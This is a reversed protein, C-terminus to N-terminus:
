ELTKNIKDLNHRCLHLIDNTNFSIAFFEGALCSDKTIKQGQQLESQIIRIVALYEKQALQLDVASHYAKALLYHALWSSPNIYIAEKFRRITESKDGAYQAILALFMSCDFSWRDADLTKLFINKAEDIRKLNFLAAGRLVNAHIAGKGDETLPELVKIAAEFKKDKLLVRAEDLLAEPQPEVTKENKVAGSNIRKFTDRKPPKHKLSVSSGSSVAEPLKKFVFVGDMEILSLSGHKHGFTEVSSVFLYGGDNLLMALNDFVRRQIEKDFYISVNRYFIVDMATFNHILTTDLLNFTEFHAHRTIQTDVKFHTEDEQTFYKKRLLEPFSRFSLSGYVARHAKDIVPNDIDAGVFHFLDLATTGFSDSVSIIISYLEEGTACGASFLRIKAGKPKSEMLEPLIKSTLVRYHAPERMFYTENITILNILREFQTQSQSILTYYEDDSSLGLIKVQSRIIEKFSALRSSDFSLGCRNRIIAQFSQLCNDEKATWDPQILVNSFCENKM